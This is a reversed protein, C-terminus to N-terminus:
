LRSLRPHYSNHSIASSDKSTNRMEHYESLAVRKQYAISIVGRIRNIRIGESAMLFAIDCYSSGRERTALQLM